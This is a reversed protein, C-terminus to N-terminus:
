GEGELRRESLEEEFLARGQAWGGGWILDMTDALADCRAPDAEVEHLVGTFLKYMAVQDMGETKLTQALQTVAATRFDGQLADLLRSRADKHIPENPTVGRDRDSTM